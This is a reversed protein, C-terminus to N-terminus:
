KKRVLKKPAPKKAAPKRRAPKPKPPEPIGPMIGSNWLDRMELAAQLEKADPESFCTYIARFLGEEVKGVNWTDWAVEVCNPEDSLLCEIVWAM